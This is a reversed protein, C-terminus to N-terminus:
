LFVDLWPFLATCPGGGWWRGCGCEGQLLLYVSMGWHHGSFVGWFGAGMIFLAMLLEGAYVQPVPRAACLPHALLSLCLTAWSPIACLGWAPQPWCTSGGRDWLRVPIQLAWVSGVKCSPVFVEAGTGPRKDSSGMKTTM